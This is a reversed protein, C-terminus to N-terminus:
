QLIQLIGYKGITEEYDLEIALETGAALVDVIAARFTLLGISFEM